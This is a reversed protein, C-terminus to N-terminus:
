CMSNDFEKGANAKNFEIIDELSKMDCGDLTGLYDECGARAQSRMVDDMLDDVNTGSEVLWEEPSTIYVPHVVNAGSRRLQDIVDRTTMPRNPTLLRTTFMYEVRLLIHTSLNPSISVSQEDYGPVDGRVEAPLRWLENDVFGMSM